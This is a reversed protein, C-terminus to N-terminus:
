NYTITSDIITLEGSNKIAGGDEGSFGNKLTINKITINTGTVNFIPTKENAVISSGNGDIVLDDIDIKIGEMYEMAEASGLIVNSEIVIEKKGSHILEDLDKFKKNSQFAKAVKNFFGMILVVM